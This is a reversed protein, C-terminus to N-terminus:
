KKEELWMSFKNAEYPQNMDCSETVSWCVRLRKNEKLAQRALKMLEERDPKTGYMGNLGLFISSISVIDNGDMIAQIVQEDSMREM